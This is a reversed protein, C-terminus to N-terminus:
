AIAGNNKGNTEIFQEETDNSIDARNGFLCPYIDGKGKNM